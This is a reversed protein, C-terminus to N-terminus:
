IDLFIFRKVGFWFNAACQRLTYMDILILNASTELSLDIYKKNDDWIFNAHTFSPTLISLHPWWSHCRSVCVLAVSCMYIQVTSWVSCMLFMLSMMQSLNLWPNSGKFWWQIIKVWKLIAWNENSIWLRISCSYLWLYEHRVLCKYTM